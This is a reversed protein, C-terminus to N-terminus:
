RRRAAGRAVIGLGVIIVLLPWFVAWSLDLFLILAVALMLVGATAAGAVRSSVRQDLRHFRAAQVLAAAAPLLIFIAWWRDPLPLDMGFNRGLFVVGVLVVGLGVISMGPWTGDEPGDRRSSDTVASDAPDTMKMEGKQISEMDSGNAAGALPSQRRLGSKAM